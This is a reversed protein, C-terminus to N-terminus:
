QRIGRKCAPIAQNIRDQMGERFQRRVDRGTGPYWTTLTQKFEVDPNAIALKVARVYQGITVTISPGPLTIVRKM